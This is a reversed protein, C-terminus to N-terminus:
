ILFVVIIEQEEYKIETKKQGHMICCHLNAAFVQCM